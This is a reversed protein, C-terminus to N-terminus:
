FILLGDSGISLIEFSSDIFRIKNVTGTHKRYRANKNLQPIEWVM